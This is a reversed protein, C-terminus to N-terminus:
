EDGFGGAASGFKKATIDAEVEASAQAEGRMQAIQEETYGLERQLQENSVGVQKKATAVTAMDADSRPSANKWNVAIQGPLDIGAIAACFTLVDAWVNGFAIQRDEIKAVFRSESTKLSEGSPWSGPTMQMYHAPVGVVDAAAAKFRNQVNILQDLDAASFEGFKADTDGSLWLRDVGPQFALKEKGTVPDTEQQLGTAYRQPYSAFEMAVLMDAVSKNLADQIPLVDRLESSGYEGIDADNAFHFVPVQDWTNAVTPGDGDEADALPVFVAKESPLGLSPRIPQATEYREIVDRTYLNARARKDPAIWVKVAWDIVETEDAYHVYIRRSDQPYIRPNSTEPDKWVIVFSDGMKVAEKHVRGARLDMRNARWISWLQSGAIDEPTAKPAPPPAPIEGPAPPERPIPTEVEEPAEGAEIVTGTVQLRDTISDVIAPCMNERYRAVVRAFYDKYKDSAYTLPQVGAYYAVYDSTEGARKRLATIAERIRGRSEGELASRGPTAPTLLEIVM